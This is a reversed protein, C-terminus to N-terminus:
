SNLRTSKRDKLENLVEKEDRWEIQEPEGPFQNQLVNQTIRWVKVMGPFYPALFPGPSRKELVPMEFITVGVHEDVSRTKISAFIHLLALITALGSWSWQLGFHEVGPGTSFRIVIVVTLMLVLYIIVFTWYMGTRIVVSPTQQQTDM